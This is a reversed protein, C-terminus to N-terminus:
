EDGGFDFGEFGPIHSSRKRRENKDSRRPEPKRRRSRPQAEDPDLRGLLGRLFRVAARKLPNGKLRRIERKLQIIKFKQRTIVIAQVVVLAALVLFAVPVLGLDLAILSNVITLLQDLM